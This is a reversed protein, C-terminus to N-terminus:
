RWRLRFEAVSVALRSASQVAADFLEATSQAVVAAPRLVAEALVIACVVEGVLDAAVASAGELTRGVKQAVLLAM